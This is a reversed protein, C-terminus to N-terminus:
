FSWWVISFRVPFGSVQDQKVLRKWKLALFATYSDVIRYLVLQFDAFCDRSDLWTPSVFWPFWSKINYSRRQPICQNKLPSFLRLIELITTYLPFLFLSLRSLHDFSGHFLNAKGSQVSLFFLCGGCPFIRRRSLFFLCLLQLSFPLIM